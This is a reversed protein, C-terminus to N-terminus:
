LHGGSLSVICSSWFGQIASHSSTAHLHPFVFDGVGRKGKGSQRSMGRRRSSTQRRKGRTPPSTHAVRKLARTPPPTLPEDEDDDDNGNNGSESEEEEGEEEGEYDEDNERAAPTTEPDDEEITVLDGGKRLVVVSASAQAVTDRTGARLADGLTETSVGRGRGRQPEYGSTSVERAGTRRVGRAGLGPQLRATLETVRHTSNLDINTRGFLTTDCVDWQVTTTGRIRLRGPTHPSRSGPGTPLSVPDGVRPRPPPPPMDGAGPAREQVGGDAGPVDARNRGGTSTSGSWVQSTPAWPISPITQWPPHNLKQDFIRRNLRTVDLVAAAALEKADLPRHVEQTAPRRPRPRVVLPESGLDMIVVCPVDHVAVETPKSRRAEALKMGSFPLVQGMATDHVVARSDGAGGDRGQGAEVAEDVTQPRSVVAEAVTQPGGEVVEDVAEAAVAQSGTEGAAKDMSPARGASAAGGCSPPAGMSLNVDFYTGMESDVYGTPPSMGLGRAVGPTFGGVVPDVEETIFQQVLREEVDVGDVEEGVVAVGVRVEEEGMAVVRAEEEEVAVEAEVALAATVEVEAVTAGGMNTPTARHGVEEQLFGRSPSRLRLGRIATSRHLLGHQPLSYALEQM